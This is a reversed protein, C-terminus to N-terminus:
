IKIADRLLCLAKLTAHERIENRTGKFFCREASVFGNVYVGVYVLGVPKEATGGDPGAIGTTSVGADAGSRRAIGEAMEEATEVSVAGFQALTEPKVDLRAIKSNNSYTVAGELFFASAGAWDVLHASVLGGTCSEATAITLKKEAAIAAIEAVVSEIESKPM